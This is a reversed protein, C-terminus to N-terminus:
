DALEARKKLLLKLVKAHLDVVVELPKDFELSIRILDPADHSLGGIMQSKDKNEWYTKKEQDTQAEKKPAVKKDVEELTKNKVITKYGKDNTAIEVAYTNGAEFSKLDVDKAVNLYKKPGIAVAGSYYQPFKPKDFVKEVRVFDTTTKPM